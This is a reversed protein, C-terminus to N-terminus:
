KKMAYIVIDNVQSLGIEVEDEVKFQAAIDAPLTVKQHSIFVTNKEMGQIKGRIVKKKWANTAKRHQMIRGVFLRACLMAGVVLVLNLGSRLNESDLNWSLWKLNIYVAAGAFLLFPIAYFLAAKKLQVATIAALQDRETMSLDELSVVPKM